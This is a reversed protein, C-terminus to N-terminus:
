GKNTAHDRNAIPVNITKGKTGRFLKLANLFGRAHNRPNISAIPILEMLVANDRSSRASTKPTNKIAGM